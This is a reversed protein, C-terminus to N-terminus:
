RMGKIARHGWFISGPVDDASVIEEKIEPEDEIVELKEESTPATKKKSIKSKKTKRTITKPKEKEEDQTMYYSLIKDAVQKQDRINNEVLDKLLKTRKDLEKLLDQKPRGSISAIKELLYSDEFWTEFEDTRPNWVAVERYQDYDEIEWITRVRRGFNLGNKPKPLEVRQVHLASNM